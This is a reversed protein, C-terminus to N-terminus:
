KRLKSKKQLVVAKSIEEKRKHLHINEKHIKKRERNIKASKAAQERHIEFSIEKSEAESWIQKKYYRPLVKSYGNRNIYYGNQNNRANEINIHNLFNAGLRQSMVAFRKVSKQTNDEKDIYKACYAMTKDNCDEGIHVIGQTWARYISDVHRVNYIILHYHPRETQGGYEGCAYYKISRGDKPKADWLETKNDYYRLRKIFNRLDRKSLIVEGTDQDWPLEEDTYTLTVFYSSSSVRDEEELRITWDEVRRRKCAPCKGCPIKMDAQLEIKRRYKEFYVEEGARHKIWPSYCM